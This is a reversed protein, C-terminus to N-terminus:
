HPHHFKKKTLETIQRHFEKFFLEKRRGLPSQNPAHSSSSSSSGPIWSSLTIANDVLESFIPCRNTFGFRLSEKLDKETIQAARGAHEEEGAARGPSGTLSCLSVSSAGWPVAKGGNTVWVHQKLEAMKIRSTPEKDLIRSILDVLPGDWEDPIAPAQTEIAEYMVMIQDSPFPLSGTLMFYLTVGMAWIDTATGSVPVESQAAHIIEPSLFAPSGITRSVTSDDGPKAFMASIGFDVVKLQKKDSSLLLNDPKIDYHIIENRHLYDIGAVLQRFYKRALDLDLGANLLLSDEKQDSCQQHIKIQHTEQVLRMLSGGPCYEMVMYLSDEGEVDLVEHLKVLNHHRIKKMIAVENRILYLADDPHDIFPQNIQMLEKAFKRKLRTKSLEKIAYSLGTEADEALQVAGFSGRGIERKILYQNVQKQGLESLTSHANLTEKVIPQSQDTRSPHLPPPRFSTTTPLSASNPPLQDTTVTNQPATESRSPHNPIPSISQTNSPSDTFVILSSTGSQQEHQEQEQPQPQPQKTPPLKQFWEDPPWSPKTHQQQQQQQQQKILKQLQAATQQIHKHISDLTM